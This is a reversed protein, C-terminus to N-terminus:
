PQAKLPPLKEFFGEKELTRLPGEDVFADIGMNKLRALDPSTTAMDDRQQLISEEIPWPVDRIEGLVLKQYVTEEVEPNTVHTYKKLHQIALQKDNKIMRVAEVYARLFNEVTGRNKALYPRMVYIDGVSLKVGNALTEALVSMQKGEAKLTAIVDFSSLTADVTGNLVAQDKQYSNPTGLVVIKVDKDPTLGFKPLLRRLAFDDGGSFASIGASRGRLQEMSTFDPRAVVEYNILQEMAVLAVPAGRGVVTIAASATGFVIDVSGAVLAQTAAASGQFLILKLDLGYKKALGEDEAVWIPLTQTSVFAIGVNVKQMGGQASAAGAAGSGLLLLLVAIMKTM